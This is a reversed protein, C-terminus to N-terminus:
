LPSVRKKDSFEEAGGHKNNRGLNMLEEKPINEALRELVSAMFKHSDLFQLNGVEFTIYTQQM